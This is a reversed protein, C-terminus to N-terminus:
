EPGDITITEGLFIPAVSESSRKGTAVGFIGGPCPGTMKSGCPRTEEWTRARGNARTAALRKGADAVAGKAAAVEEADLAFPACNLTDKFLTGEEMPKPAPMLNGEELLKCAEAKNYKENTYGNGSFVIAGCEQDSTCGNDYKTSGHSLLYSNARGAKPIKGKRSLYGASSSPFKKKDEKEKRAASKLNSEKVSEKINEGLDRAANDMTKVMFMFSLLPLAVFIFLIILIVVVVTNM